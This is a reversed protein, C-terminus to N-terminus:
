DLEDIIYDRAYAMAEDDYEREVMEYPSELDRTAFGGMLVQGVVKGKDKHDKAQHLGEKAENKVTSRLARTPDKSAGVVKPVTKTVANIIGQLGFQRRELERSVLEELELERATIAQRGYSEIIPVALTSVAGLSATAVLVVPLTQVM